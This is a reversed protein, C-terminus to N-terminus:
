HIRSLQNIAEEEIQLEFFFFFKHKALNKKNLWNEAISIMTNLLIKGLDGITKTFEQSNRYIAIEVM